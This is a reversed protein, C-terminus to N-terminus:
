TTHKEMAKLAHNITEIRGKAMRRLLDINPVILTLEKGRQVAQIAQRTKRNYQIAYAEYASKAGAPNRPVILKPAEAAAIKELENFDTVHVSVNGVHPVLGRSEKQTTEFANALTKAQMIQTYYRRLAKLSNVTARAYDKRRAVTARKKAVAERKKTEKADIREKYFDYIKAVENASPTGKKPANKRLFNIEEAEKELLGRVKEARAAHKAGIGSLAESVKALAEQRMQMETRLGDISTIFVLTGHKSHVRYRGESIKQAGRGTKALEQRAKGLSPAVAFDTTLMDIQPKLGPFDNAIKGLATKIPGMKKVPPLRKIAAPLSKTGALRTYVRSLEEPNFSIVNAKQSTKTANRVKTRLRRHREVRKSIEDRSLPIKRLVDWKIPIPNGHVDLLKTHDFTKGKFVHVVRSTNSGTEGITAGRLMNETIRKRLM